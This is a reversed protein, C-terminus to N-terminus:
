FKYETILMGSLLGQKDVIPSDKIEDGLRQYELMATLQWRESLRYSGTVGVTLIDGSEVLYASRGARAEEARVGFYYDAYDDSLRTYSLHPELSISDTLELPLSYTLEVLNGDHKDLLDQSVDLSMVGYNGWVSLNIGGRYSFKRDKMGALAKSDKAKYSLFDPEGILGVSWNESEALNVWLNGSAFVLHESNYNILPLPLVETDVGKYPQEMVMVGLGTSWQGAFVNCSLTAAVLVGATKNLM